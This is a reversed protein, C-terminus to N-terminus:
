TCTSLPREQTSRGWPMTVTAALRADDSWAAEAAQGARRLQDPADALEIHPFEMSAPSEGRSLAVGLWSAGILHDILAAVDYDPCPTPDGLQDPSVGAVITVAHTFHRALDARRDTDTMQEEEGLM